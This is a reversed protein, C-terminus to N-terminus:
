TQVQALKKRYEEYGVINPFELRLSPLKQGHTILEDIRKYLPHKRHLETQLEKLIMMAGIAWRCDKETQERCATEEPSELYGDCMCGITQGIMGSNCSSVAISQKTFGTVAVRHNETRSHGCGPQACVHKKGCFRCGM